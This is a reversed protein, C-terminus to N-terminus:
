NGRPEFPGPASAPMTQPTMMRAMGLASVSPVPAPAPTTVRAIAPSMIPPPASPAPTPRPPPSTAINRPPSAAPGPPTAAPTAIRVPPLPPPLPLPTEAVPDAEPEDTSEEPKWGPARPPPLRNGLEALSTFQRPAVTVLELFQDALPALRDPDNLQTWEAQLVISRERATDTARITAVIQRELLQTEHKVHYLFMGAVGALTVCFLTFLRIM